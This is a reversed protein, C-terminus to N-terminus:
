EQDCSFSALRWRLVVNEAGGEVQEWLQNCLFFQGEFRILMSHQEFANRLLRDETIAAGSIREYAVSSTVIEGNQMVRQALAEPSTDQASALSGGLLGWALTSAFYALSKFNM